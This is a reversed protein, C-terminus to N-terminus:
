EWHTQMRDLEEIVESALPASKHDMAERTLERLRDEFRRAGAEQWQDYV